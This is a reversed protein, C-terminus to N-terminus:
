PNAVPGLSQNELPALIKAIDKEGYVLRDNAQNVSNIYDLQGLIAQHKRLIDDVETGPMYSNEFSQEEFDKIQPNYVRLTYQVVPGNSTKQIKTDGSPLNIELPMGREYAYENSSVTAQQFLVNNAMAKPIRVTIADGSIARTGTEKDKQFSEAYLQSPYITLGVYNDDGQSINAYAFKGAFTKEDKPDAYVNRTNLMVQLEKFANEDSTELVTGNDGYGVLIGSTNGAIDALSVAGVDIDKLISEFVNTTSGKGRYGYNFQSVTGMGAKANSNPGLGEIHNWATIDPIKSYSENWIKKAADWNNRYYEETYINRKGSKAAREENIKALKKIIAEKRYDNPFFGNTSESMISGVIKTPDNGKQTFWPIIKDRLQEMRDQQFLSLNRDQLAINSVNVNYNPDSKVDKAWYNNRVQGIENLATTYSTWLNPNSGQEMAGIKDLAIQRKTPDMLDSTKIGLPQFITELSGRILQQNKTDGKAVARDYSQLMKLGTESLFGAKMESLDSFLANNREMNLKVGSTNMNTVAGPFNPVAQMDTLADVGLRKRELKDKLTEQFEIKMIENQFRRDELAVNHSHRMKELAFPNHEKILREQTMYAYSNAADGFIKYMNGMGIVQDLKSGNSLFDMYDNTYLDLTKSQATTVKQTNNANLQAQQLAFGQSVVFKDSPLVGNKAVYDSFADMYRDIMMKKDDANIKARKITGIVENLKGQAYEMQAMAENGQFKEMNTTIYDKREVYAQTNLFRMIRPDAGFRGVLYDRLNSAILEGNQNTVIWNGDPSFNDIKVNFKNKLIDEMAMGYVNMNEVYEPSNFSLADDASIKRFDQAWYDLARMGGNWGKETGQLSKGVDKANNWQKTKIIDNMIFKDNVLPDLVKVAEDVNQRLSLDVGSIKQIESEISKLFNDRKQINDDRLMPSKLIAGYYESLQKYNTDYKNQLTQLASAYFNFDPRFPQIKPIYDTVGQIFTAM